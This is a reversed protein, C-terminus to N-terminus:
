RGTEAAVQADWWDDWAGAIRAVESPPTFEELEGFSTRAIDRLALDCARRVAWGDARLGRILVPAAELGAKGTEWNRLEPTDIGSIVLADVLWGRPGRERAAEWWGAYLSAVLQPDDKVFTELSIGEIARRAARPQRGKDLMALLRPIADPERWRALSLAAEDAVEDAPDDVLRVLDRMSERGLLVVLGGLARARPGALRGRDLAVRRLEAAARDTGIEVLMRSAIERVISADDLTMAFAIASIAEPERTAALAEVATVRLGPDDAAYASMLADLSSRGGLRGLAEVAAGRVDGPKSALVELDKRAWECRLRGLARVSERRITLDPDALGKKVAAEALERSSSEDLSALAAARVAVREDAVGAALSAAGADRFVQVLLDASRPGTRTTLFDLLLPHAEDRAAKSLTLVLAESTGDLRECRGLRALLRRTGDDGLAAGLRPLARLEALAAANWAEGRADSLSSTVLEAFAAAREDDSRDPTFRSGVLAVFSPLDLAQSQTRYRQWGHRTRAATAAALLDAAPGTTLDGSFAIRRERRGARVVAELPAVGETSTGSDAVRLAGSANVARALALADEAPLLLALDDPAAWALGDPSAAITTGEGGPARPGRLSLSFGSVQDEPVELLVRRARFSSGSQQWWSIWEAATNTSSRGTLRQLRRVALPQFVRLDPWFTQGAVVDILAPVIRRDLVEDLAPVEHFYGVDALVVAAGARSLPDIGALGRGGLLLRVTADDVTRRSMREGRLALALTAYSVQRDVPSLAARRLVDEAQPDDDGALARAAAYAVEPAPDRLAAALSPRAAAPDARVLLGVAAARAAPGGADLIDRLADVDPPGVRHQLRVAAEEVVGGAPHLLQAMLRAKAGAADIRVLADLLDASHTFMRRDQLKALLLEIARQDGIKGLTAAIGCVRRWDDGRSEGRGAGRPEPPAGLAALLLPTAVSPQAALRISAQKAEIAPWKGLTEIWGEAEADRRPAAPAPDKAGPPSGRGAGGDGRGGDGTGDGSGDGAGDGGAGGESDGMRIRGPRKTDKKPDDKTGAPPIGPEPPTEQAVAGRAAVVLFLATAVSAARLTRPPRSKM